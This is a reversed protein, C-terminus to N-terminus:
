VRTGKRTEVRGKDRFVLPAGGDLLLVADEPLMLDGLKSLALRLLM